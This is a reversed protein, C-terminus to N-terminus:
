QEEVAAEEKKKAANMASTMGKMLLFLVIAVILFNIFHRDRAIRSRM